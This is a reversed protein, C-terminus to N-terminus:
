SGSVRYRSSSGDRLGLIFRGLLSDTPPPHVPELDSCGAALLLTFGVGLLTMKWSGDMM